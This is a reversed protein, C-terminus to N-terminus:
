FPIPSPMYYEKLARGIAVMRGVKRSPVDRKSCYAFSESIFEGTEKDFLRAITVYKHGKREDKTSNGEHLHKVIVRMNKPVEKETFNAKPCFQRM